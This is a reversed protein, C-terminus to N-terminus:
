QAAEAYAATSLADSVIRGDKLTVIRRMSSAIEPDHTVLLLTVGSANIEQLMTLITGGVATDLAGTPEDALIIKPKNALARAIAVRQQQGGSLQSPFHHARDTLGVLELLQMVRKNRAARSWRAYILPLEINELATARALLSFNQFVFGFHSLRLAAMQWRSMSSVDTGDLMYSGSSPTDLCGLVNLLTSKGSGSPGMIAVYEGQAISLSVGRLAEVEIAGTRYTKRVEDLEIVPSAVPGVV